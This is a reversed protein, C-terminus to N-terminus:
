TGLHRLVHHLDRIWDVLQTRRGQIRAYVLLSHRFCHLFPLRLGGLYDLCQISDLKRQRFTNNSSRRHRFDVRWLDYQDYAAVGDLVSHYVTEKASAM